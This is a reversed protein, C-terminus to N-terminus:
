SKNNKPTGLLRVQGIYARNDSEGKWGCECVHIKRSHLQYVSQNFFCLQCYLGIMWRGLPGITTLVRPKKKCSIQLLQKNLGCRYNRTSDVVSSQSKFKAVLVCM